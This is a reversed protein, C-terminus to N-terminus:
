TWEIVLIVTRKCGSMIKIGYLEIYLLLLM